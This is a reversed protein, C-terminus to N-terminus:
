PHVRRPEQLKDVVRVADEWPTWGLSFTADHLLKDEGLEPRDNVGAITQLGHTAALLTAQAIFLDRAAQARATQATVLQSQADLLEFTSRFGAKEEQRVGETARAAADVAGGLLAFNSRAAQAQSWSQAVVMLVQRRTAETTERQANAIHAAQRVQSQLAGGQLLPASFSLGASIKRGTQSFPDAGFYGTDSFGYSGTLSLSPRLGARARDIGARAAHETSEAALLAPNEIDAADLASALNPPALQALDPVPELNDPPRGVAQVFEAIAAEVQGRASTTAAEALAVRTEAEAVDTRTADGAMKQASSQDLHGRMEALNRVEIDLSNKALQVDAYATAAQLLVSQLAQDYSHKAAFLTAKAEAVAAAARGGTYLPQAASIALGSSNIQGYANPRDRETAVQGTIGATPRWASRAQVYSERAALVQEYQSKLEPHSRAAEALVDALTEATSPQPLILLAVALCSGCLIRRYDSDSIQGLYKLQM